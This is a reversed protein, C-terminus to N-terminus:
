CPSFFRPFYNHLLYFSLDPLCHVVIRYHSRVNVTHDIPPAMDANTGGKLRLTTSSPGYLAIPLAVQVLLGVSRFHLNCTLLSTNCPDM